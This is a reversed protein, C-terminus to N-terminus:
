LESECHTPPRPYITPPLPRRGPPARRRPARPAPVLPSPVSPSSLRPSSTTLPKGSGAPPTEARLPYQANARRIRPLTELLYAVICSLSCEHEASWVRARLYANEPISVTINKMKRM